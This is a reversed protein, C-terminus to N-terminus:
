QVLTPAAQGCSSPLPKLILSVQRGRSPRRTMRSGFASWSAPCYAGRGEPLLAFASRAKRKVGDHVTIADLDHAAHRGGADVENESVREIEHPIARSASLGEDVVVAIIPQLWGERFHVPQQLGTREAQAEVAPVCGVLEDQSPAFGTETDNSVNDELLLVGRGLPEELMPM